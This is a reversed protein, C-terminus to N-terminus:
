SSYFKYLDDLTTPVTFDLLIRHSSCSVLFHCPFDRSFHWSPLGILLHSFSMLSCKHLYTAPMPLLQFYSRITDLSLKLLILSASVELEAAMTNRINCLTCSWLYHSVNLLSLIVPLPFCHGYIHVGINADKTRMINMSRNQRIWRWNTREFSTNLAFNEEIIPSECSHKTQIDYQIGIRIIFMITETWDNGFARHLICARFLIAIKFM